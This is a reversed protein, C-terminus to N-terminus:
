RLNVAVLTGGTTAIYLVGRDSLAMDGGGQYSWVVKRTAIDIALTGLETSVFLVNDTALMRAQGASLRPNFLPASRWLVLGTGAARAEVVKGDDVLSYLTGNVEVSHIIYDTSASWARTQSRLDFGQLRHDSRAIIVDKGLLLSTIGSGPSTALDPLSFVVSGDRTDRADIRDALAMYAFGGDVVPASYPGYGSGGTKKWELLGSAANAKFLGDSNGAYLMGAAFTPERQFESSTDLRIKGLLEGSAGDAMQLVQANSDPTIWFVKGDGAAIRGLGVGIDIARRWLLEGTAENTAVLERIGSGTRVVFVRGNDAVPAALRAGEGLPRAWRRSFATPDFRAPVHPNQAANGDLGSWSPLGAIAALPTLTSAPKVTVELPIRWPSGGVPSRCERPDDYCVRLELSTAHEGLALMSATRLTGTFDGPSYQDLTQNLYLVGNSDFVGAHVRNPFAYRAQAEFRIAHEEGEHAVLDFGEPVQMRQKADPAPALTLTVPIIWPSGPLPNRCVLPDDECLRLTMDGMHVGATYTDFRGELMYDFDSLRTLRVQSVSVGNSRVIAANIPKEFTRSAHARIQFSVADDEIGSFTPRDPTLTLWSGAPNAVPASGGGPATGSPSGAVPNAGGSDGGGGCGAALVACLLGTTVSRRFVM